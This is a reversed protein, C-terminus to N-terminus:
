GETGGEIRILYGPIALRTGTKAGHQIVSQPDFDTGMAKKFASRVRRLNNRLDDGIANKGWVTNILKTSPM